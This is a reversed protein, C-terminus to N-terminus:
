LSAPGDDAALCVCLELVIHPYQPAVNLLGWPDEPLHFLQPEFEEDDGVVCLWETTRIMCIGDQKLILQQREGVRQKWQALANSDESMSNLLDQLDGVGLPEHLRGHSEQTGVLEIMLPLHQTEPHVLRQEGSSLSRDVSLEGTRGYVVVVDGPRLQDQLEDRLEGFARDIGEVLYEHLSLRLALPSAPDWADLGAPNLLFENLLEVPDLGAEAVEEVWSDDSDGSFEAAHEATIEFQHVESGAALHVSEAWVIFNDCALSRTAQADLNPTAHQWCGYCGLSLAPLRDIAILYITM